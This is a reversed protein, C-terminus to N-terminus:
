DHAAGEALAASLEAIRTNAASQLRMIKLFHRRRYADYLAALDPPLMQVRRHLEDLTSQPASEYLDKMFCCFRLRKTRDHETLAATELDEDIGPAYAEFMRLRQYLQANQARTKELAAIAATHVLKWSAIASRCEEIEAVLRHQAELEPMEGCAEPEELVMPLQEALKWSPQPTRSSRRAM